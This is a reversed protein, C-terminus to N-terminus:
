FRKRFELTFSRGKPDRYAPQYRLPTAGQSDRADQRANTINVITASLRAGKLSPIDPLLRHGEIFLRTDFTALPVFRVKNPTSGDLLDLSSVGEYRGTLRIGLGREAYDLSVDGVHRPSTEGGIGLANSGLLDIPSFASTLVADSKILM